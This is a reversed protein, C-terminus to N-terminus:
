RFRFTLTFPFCKLYFFFRKSIRTMTKSEARRRTPEFQNRSVELSVFRLLYLQILFDISILTWGNWSPPCGPISHHSRKLCFGFIRRKTRKRTTKMTKKTRKRLFYCVPNMSVLISSYFKSPHIMPCLHHPSCNWYHDLGDFYGDNSDSDVWM